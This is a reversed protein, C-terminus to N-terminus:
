SRVAKRIRTAALITAQKRGRGLGRLIAACQRVTATAPGGLSDLLEVTETLKPPSSGSDTFPDIITETTM